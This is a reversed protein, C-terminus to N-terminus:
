KSYTLMGEASLDEDIDPWHVGYGDGILEWNDRESQTAKALRPFWKMPCGVVRGDNLTMYINTDDFHVSTALVTKTKIM